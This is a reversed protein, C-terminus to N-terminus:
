MLTLVDGVEYRSAVVVRPTSGRIGDFLADAERQVIEPTNNNESLHGLILMRLRGNAHERILSMAQHNSLHGHESRIRDKLYQPYSGTELMHEDYNSEVLAADVEGLLGAVTADHMGLDTAYLFRRGDITVVFFVPDAADHSKPYARVEIDEITVAETNGMFRHGKHPKNRWMGRFTAETLYTPIRYLKTTVPVGRVHDGHEHTVFIGRVSQLHRGHVKLRLEIQRRSIGCDLLVAAGTHPSEVYVANGNSGSNLVIINM